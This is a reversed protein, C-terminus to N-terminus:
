PREDSSDWRTGHWRPDGFHTDGRHRTPGSYGQEDGVAPDLGVSGELPAPLSTPGPLAASSDQAVPNQRAENTDQVTQYAMMAETLLDALQVSRRRRGGTRTASRESTQPWQTLQEPEPQATASAAAPRARPETPPEIPPEAQPVPTAEAATAPPPVPLPQGAIPSHPAPLEHRRYRLPVWSGDGFSPDDGTPPIAPIPTKPHTDEASLEPRPEPEASSWPDPRPADEASPFSGSPSWPDPRPAPETGPSPEPHAFLEPHAVPQPSPM